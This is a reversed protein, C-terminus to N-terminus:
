YGLIKMAQELEQQTIEGRAYRERLMDRATPRERERGAGGRSLALVGWVIVVVLGIMVLMGGLMWIWWLAGGDVGYRMM